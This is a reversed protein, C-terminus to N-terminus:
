GYHICHSNNGHRGQGFDDGLHQRRTILAAVPRNVLEVAMAPLREDRGAAWRYEITVNQGDVFGEDKLGLRVAEALHSYGEASQGNLMGVVPVAPQQARAVFPWAVAAGGLFSIFRRRQM